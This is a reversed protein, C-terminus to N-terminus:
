NLVAKKQGMKNIAPTLLYKELVDILSQELVIKGLLPSKYIIPKKYRELYMNSYQLVLTLAIIKATLDEVEFYGDFIKMVRKKFNREISM